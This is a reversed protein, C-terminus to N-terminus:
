LMIYNGVLFWLFLLPLFSTISLTCEMTRIQNWNKTPFFDICESMERVECDNSSGDSGTYVYHWHFTVNCWEMVMVKSNRRNRIKTYTRHLLANISINQSSLYSVQCYITAPMAALGNLARLRCMKRVNKPYQREFRHTFDSCPKSRKLRERIPFFSDWIVDAVFVRGIPFVSRGCVTTNTIHFTFM